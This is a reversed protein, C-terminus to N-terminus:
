VMANPDAIIQRFLDYAKAAEHAYFETNHRDIIELRARAEPDVNVVEDIAGGVVTVNPGSDGSSASLADFLADTPDNGMIQEGLTDIGDAVAPQDPQLNPADLYRTVDIPRGNGEDVKTSTDPQLNTVGPVKEAPPRATRVLKDFTGPQVTAGAVRAQYRSNWEMMVDNAWEQALQEARQYEGGAEVFQAGNAIRDAFEQGYRWAVAVMRWDHYRWYLDQGYARAIKEQGTPTEMKVGLRKEYARAVKGPMEFAGVKRENSPRWPTATRGPDTTYAGLGYEYAKAGGPLRMTEVFAALQADRDPQTWRGSALAPPIQTGEKLQLELVQGGEPGVVRASEIIEENKAWEIVEGYVQPDGVLEFALGSEAAPNRKAGGVTNADPDRHDSTVALGFSRGVAHGIAVANADPGGGLVVDADDATKGGMEYAVMAEQYQPSGYGFTSAIAGLDPGSGYQAQIAAIDQARDRQAIARQQAVEESGVVAVVAAVEDASLRRGLADQAFTQASLTLAAPDTRTITANPIKEVVNSDRAGLAAAKTHVSGFAKIRSVLLDELTREGDNRGGDALFEQWATVTDLDAVGLKPTAGSLIADEGYYGALWLKKQVQALEAATLQYVADNLRKVNETNGFRSPLVRRRADPNRVQLSVQEAIGGPAFDDIAQGYRFSALYEERPSGWLSSVSNGLVQSPDFQGTSKGTPADALSLSEGNALLDQNKEATRQAIGQDQLYTAAESAPIVRGSPMVKVTVQNDAGLEFDLWQDEFDSDDLLPGLNMGSRRLM